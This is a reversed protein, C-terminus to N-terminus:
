IVSCYSVFKNDYSVGLMKIPSFTKGTGNKWLCMLDNNRPTLKEKVQSAVVIIIPCLLGSAVRQSASLMISNQTPTQAKSATHNKVKWKPPLKVDHRLMNYKSSLMGIRKIFHIYTATFMM